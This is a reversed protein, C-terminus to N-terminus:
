IYYKPFASILHNLINKRKEKKKKDIAVNISWLNCSSLISSETEGKMGKLVSSNWVKRWTTYACVGSSQNQKKKATQIRCGKGSLM